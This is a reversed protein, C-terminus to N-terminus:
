VAEIDLTTSRKNLFGMTGNVGTGRSSRRDQDGLPPENVPANIENVAANIEGLRKSFAKRQLEIVTQKEFDKLRSTGHFKRIPINHAGMWHTIYAYLVKGGVAIM